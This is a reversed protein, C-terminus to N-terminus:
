PEYDYLRKAKISPIFSPRSTDVEPSDLWCEGNLWTAPHPIFRGGEKTWQDSYKQREVAVLLTELSVSVKQFAQYAYRKKKKNPYTEWFKEFEATYTNKNDISKNYHRSKRPPPNDTKAPLTGANESVIDTKAPIGLNIKQPISGISLGKRQIIFAMDNKGTTMVKQWEETPRIGTDRENSRRLEVLNKSLLTQYARNVTDRSVDLEEALEKQSMVCWNDYKPNNSLRYVADLICYETLSLNYARRIPHIVTTYIM